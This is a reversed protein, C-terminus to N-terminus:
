VKSQGAWEPLTEEVGVKALLARLAEAARVMGEPGSFGSSHGAFALHPELALYGQYGADRLRSLLLEFQGDGEGAPVVEGNAMRYDKIHVHRTRPGLAEWGDTVAAKEGVHVFNAPDWAFALNNSPIAAMLQKCRAVTDGVIGSENELVLQIGAREAEATMTALRSISEEVLQAETWAADPAQPPYFSFVRVLRTGVQDAIAFIRQLNALEQELPQTIPSKGIPSGIASVAMGADDVTKALRGVEDDDLNLVNKGWVGRLELYGISLSRLVQLQVDLDDSIEDGFASLRWGLKGM